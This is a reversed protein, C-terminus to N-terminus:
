VIGLYQVVTALVEAEVAQWQPVSELQALMRWAAAMNEVDAMVATLIAISRLVVKM